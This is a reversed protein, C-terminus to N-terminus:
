LDGVGERNTEWERSRGRDIEDDENIGEKNCERTFKSDKQVQAIQGGGPEKGSWLHYCSESWLQCVVKARFNVGDLNEAWEGARDRDIQSQAIQQNCGVIQQNCGVIKQSCGVIQQSCGVIQQSSEM